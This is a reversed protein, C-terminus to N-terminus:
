PDARPIGNIYLVYRYFPVHQIQQFGGLVNISTIDFGIPIIM